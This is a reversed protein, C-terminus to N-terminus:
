VAPRHDAPAQLPLEGVNMQVKITELCASLLGISLLDVRETPSQALDLAVEADVPRDRCLPLWFLHSVLSFLAHTTLNIWLREPECDYRQADCKFLSELDQGVLVSTLRALPQIFRLVQRQQATLCMEVLSSPLIARIRRLCRKGHSLADRERGIGWRVVSQILTLHAVQRSALLQRWSKKPFRL